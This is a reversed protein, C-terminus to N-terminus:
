SSPTDWAHALESFAKMYDAPTRASGCRPPRGDRRPRVHRSPGRRSAGTAVAAAFSSYSPWSEAPRRRSWSAWSRPDRRASSDSHWPPTPPPSAAWRHRPSAPGTGPPAGVTQAVGPTLRLPCLLSLPWASASSLARGRAQWPASIPPFTRDCTRQRSLNGSLSHCRVAPCGADDLLRAPHAGTRDMYTDARRVSEPHSRGYMRSDYGPHLCITAGM